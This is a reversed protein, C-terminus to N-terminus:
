KSNLIDLSNNSIQLKISTGGANALRYMQRTETDFAWASLEVTGKPLKDISFTKTWRVNQYTPDNLAAAVDSSSGTAAAITFAKPVNNLKEYALVVADAPQKRDPFIAWGSVTIEAKSVKKISISDLYGGAKLAHQEGKESELMSPSTILPPKMFHMENLRNVMPGLMRPWPYIAAKIVDGEDIINFYLLCAKAYLRYRHGAAMSDVSSQYTSTHLVLFLAALIFISTKSISNAVITPRIFRSQIANDSIIATLYILSVVLYLSFTTYRSPMAAELGFGLRGATTILASACSYMAIAIWPISHYIVQRDKKHGLLYLFISGLLIVLLLGVIRATGLQNSSLSSGLFILFFNVAEFPHYLSESFSPHHSPKIYNHFYLVLNLICGVTGGLILWRQSKLERKRSFRLTLAASPFVIFWSLMGNAYSYTSITCLGILVLTKRKIELNSYSVILGAIICAIPIFVVLQIGWLWNEYQVPSFILLNAAFLLLLRVYESGRITIRSLCYIQVSILCAVIFTLLFEYRTDWNTLFAMGLFLLRPFFKRSENHQAILDDFSLTGDAAKFIAELPTKWQDMSPLNVANEILLPVLLFIPVMALCITIVRVIPFSMLKEFFAFRRLKM